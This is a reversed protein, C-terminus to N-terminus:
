TAPKRRPVLRYNRGDPSGCAAVHEGLRRHRHTRHCWICAFVWHTGDRRVPIVPPRTASM